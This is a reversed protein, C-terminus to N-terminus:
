RLNTYFDEIREIALIIENLPRRFANSMKDGKFGTKGIVGIGPIIVSVIMM